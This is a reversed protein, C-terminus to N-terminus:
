ELYWAWPKNTTYSTVQKVNLYNDLGWVGLERGIGSQKVGGFPGQVFVPQSCNVWVVGAELANAVRDCRELDASMVAAGLGYSTDNALQIAEAETAFNRVCLVPGFIEETWLKSTTPVNVFVTPEVYFGLPLGAPRQGGTLLELGAAKGEAIYGTVKEYQGRSVLPGLLVGEAFPDGVKIKECELKLRELLRPALTEQVLLRSTACCNEGKNWFIGFLIWEIAQELDADDFIIFPSKGGLELSLNKIGDAAAHMVASGTPVSGTFALKSVGPHNALAQGAVSGYGPIVNLVGAPLSVRDAIDALELATLPTLESPKLVSTCGAALAPAVKWAAMLLPYNWPIIQGAVGIPELRVKACFDPSPLEIEANQRDKLQIAQQAYFEFCAIADDIDMEAEKLVKGTNLVELEALQQRRSSIQKAIAQLFSGRETGSTHRWSLFAARAATVADDVDPATAEPAFHLIKETAPNVVPITSGAKPAVWRGNIYLQNRM